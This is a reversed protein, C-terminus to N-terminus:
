IVIGSENSTSAGRLRKLSEISFSLKNAPHFTSTTAGIGQFASNPLITVPRFPAEHVKEQYKIDRKRMSDDNHSTRDHSGMDVFDSM